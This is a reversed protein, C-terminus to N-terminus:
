QLPYPPSPVGSRQSEFARLQVNEFTEEGYHPSYITVEHGRRGMASMM